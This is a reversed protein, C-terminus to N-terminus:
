DDGKEMEKTEDGRKRKKPEKWNRDRNQVGRRTVDQFSGAVPCEIRDLVLVWLLCGGSIGVKPLQLIPQNSRSLSPTKKKAM